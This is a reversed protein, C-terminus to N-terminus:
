SAEDISTSPVMESLPGTPDLLSDKNKVRNFYKLLSMDRFVNFCTTSGRSKLLFINVFTGPNVLNAFNEKM